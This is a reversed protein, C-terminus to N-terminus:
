GHRRATRSSRLHPAGDTSANMVTPVESVRPRSALWKNPPPWTSRCLRMKLRYKPSSRELNNPTVGRLRAFHM